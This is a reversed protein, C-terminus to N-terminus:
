RAVDVFSEPVNYGKVRVVASKGHLGASDYRATISKTEGPWLSIYNDSYDIPAIEDGNKGALIESRVFFAINTKNANSLTIQALGDSTQKSSVKVDSNKPLQNLGTLNAYKAVPTIYWDSKEFNFVDPQTSYWYLNDGALDGSANKLQLRLFYTTSLGDVKPITFADTPLDAPVDLTAQKSFKQALDPINYITATVTMGPFNELTSNFVSVKGTEYDWMVQVPANAKKTGFYSGAPKFYFDYLNWHITPWSNDMMWFITGTATGTKTQPNYARMAMSEFQGRAAEYNQLQSKDSYDELNISAGYRGDLGTNYTKINSFQGKGSHYTYSSNSGFQMPWLENTPIFKRLSEIPPPTEGGEEACFGFAGGSKKDAYWYAPPEWVYPGDMKIGDQGASNVMGNQWHLKQAIAKYNRLVPKEETDLPTKDSGFLWVLASPHARMNRMQSELSAYAVPFDNTTWRPWAEWRSCCVFGPILMIGERDAIDYIEENGLIGEFRITNLGMDKAYKMHMENLPTNWRMFLDWVYAGGRVLFNKGNVQFGQFYDKGNMPPTQYQTIQRIGFKISQSASIKEGIRFSVKLDYLEPKGMAYPWWLAPNEVHLEQFNEPTFSIEKRENAALTVPQEIQVASHGAKSITATLIGDVSKATGNEADVYVTLDASDTKPLPLATKVFPDRLKVPGTAELLVKGWIGANNDPPAPNWDVDWFSLNRGGDLPPTVKVALFNKAGAKIADTVNYEHIVMTGEANAALLKGNLWIEAKYAIGKFSLWFQGGSNEPALFEGRYWWKQRSLDPVSKMNQGFYLNSYVGNVVLGAMVTSPITVPYWKSSDFQASSIKDGSDAVNNASILSWNKTLEITEGFSNAALVCLLISFPFLYFKRRPNPTSNV